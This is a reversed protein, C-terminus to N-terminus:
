AQCFTIRGISVSKPPIRPEDACGRPEVVEVLQVLPSLVGSSGFPPAPPAWRGLIRVQRRFVEGLRFAIEYGAHPLLLVHGHEEGTADPLEEGFPVGGNVDALWEIRRPAPAPEPHEIGAIDFRETIQLHSERGVSL